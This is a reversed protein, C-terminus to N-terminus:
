KTQLIKKFNNLKNTLSLDIIKDKTKIQIGEINKKHLQLILQKNLRKELKEKIQFLENQGIDNKTYIIVIEKSEKKATEEEFINLIQALQRYQKNKNLMYWFDRAINKIDKQADLQDIMLKVYVIPKVKM